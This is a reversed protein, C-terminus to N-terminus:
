SLDVISLWSLTTLAQSTLILGTQNLSTYSDSLTCNSTYELFLDIIQGTYNVLYVQQTNNQWMYM